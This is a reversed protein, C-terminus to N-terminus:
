SHVRRRQAGSAEGLVPQIKLSSYGALTPSLLRRVGKADVVNGRFLGEAVGNVGGGGGLYNLKTRPVDLVQYYELKEGGRTFTSTTSTRLTEVHWHGGAYHHLRQRKSPERRSRGHSGVRGGRHHHGRFPTPETFTSPLLPVDSCQLIELAGHNGSLPLSQVAVM